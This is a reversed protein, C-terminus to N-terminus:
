DMAAVANRALRRITGPEAPAFLPSHLDSMLREAIAFGEPLVPRASELREILSVLAQRDALIAARQIERPNVRALWPAGDAQVVVLWLCCALAPCDRDRVLRTARFSLEPARGPDAGEALERDLAGRRVAVTVRLGASQCTGAVRALCSCRSPPIRRSRGDAVRSEL